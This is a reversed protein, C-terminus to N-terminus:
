FNHMFSRDTNPETVPDTWFGANIFFKNASTMMHSVIVVTILGDRQVM